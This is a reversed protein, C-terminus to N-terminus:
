PLSISFWPAVGGGAGGSGRVSGRAVSAGAGWGGRPLPSPEGEGRFSLPARPPPPPAAPGAEVGGATQERPFRSQCAFGRWPVLVGCPGHGPVALLCSGSRYPPWARWPWLLALSVRM